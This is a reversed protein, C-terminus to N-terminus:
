SWAIGALVHVASSRLVSLGFSRVAKVATADVQFLSVTATSAGTPNESDGTPANDMEVAAGHALQIDADQAGTILGRCDVLTLEDSVQGASVLASVGCLSGGTPAMDPFLLNGSTGTKTSLYNALAPNMIFALDSFGTKSVSDLLTKVDAAPSSTASGPTAAARLISLVKEDTSSTIGQALEQYLWELGENSALSENSAVALAAVKLPTLASGTLSYRGVPISASEGVVQGSIAASPIFLRQNFGVQRARSLIYEFVGPGHELYALFQGGTYSIYSGVLDAHETGAVAAKTLWPISRYAMAAAAGRDGDASVLSKLCLTLDSKKFETKM